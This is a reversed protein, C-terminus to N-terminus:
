RHILPVAKIVGNEKVIMRTHTTVQHAIPHNLHGYKVIMKTNHTFTHGVINSGDKVIM